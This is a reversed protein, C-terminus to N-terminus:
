RIVDAIHIGGGARGLVEAVLYTTDIGIENKL